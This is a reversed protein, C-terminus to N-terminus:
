LFYFIIGHNIRSLMIIADIDRYKHASIRQNFKDLDGDLVYWVNNHVFPFRKRVSLGVNEKTVYKDIRNKSM